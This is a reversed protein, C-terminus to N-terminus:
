PISVAQRLYRDSHIQALAFEATDARSVKGLPLGDQANGPRFRGTAPGGTLQAPRVIVWDLGSQRVHGEQAEHDAYSERWLTRIVLRIPLPVQRYSDGVGGASIVVLRRAGHLEMARIVNATGEARVSSKGRARSGLAVLVAEQVAVAQAAQNFNLVDGSIVCLREDQVALRRPDRVFATVRHGQALAQKVLEQGVGGTAGFVALNM